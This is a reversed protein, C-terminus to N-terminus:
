CRHIVVSVSVVSVISVISVGRIYQYYQCQCGHYYQCRKYVSLWSLVSQCCLLLWLLSGVALQWVSMGPTSAMM